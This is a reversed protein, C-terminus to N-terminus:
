TERITLIARHNIALREIVEGSESVRAARLPVFSPNADIYDSMRQEHAINLRVTLTLDGVLDLIVDRAEETPLVASSLALSSDLPVVWVILSIRISMHPLAGEAGRGDLWRVSTLNLFAKKSDLFGILSQGEAVHMIGELARNGRLLVRVPRHKLYLSAGGRPADASSRPDSSM